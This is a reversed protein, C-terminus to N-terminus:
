EIAHQNSEFSEYQLKQLSEPQNKAPSKDKLRTAM